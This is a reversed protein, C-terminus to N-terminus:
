GAMGKRNRVQGTKSVKRNPLRKESADIVWTQLVEKQEVKKKERDKADKVRRIYGSYIVVEAVAVVGSGSLSLALRSPVSWHRAAMWITFSCAIISVLVNIILALQRNVDAYTVEDEEVKETSPFLHAHPSNSYRQAFTEMKPPPNLMREYKRAEEEERLRSMLAKYEDSPEKKPPPPPVYLKAGRLLEDLHYSVNATEEDSEQYHKKLHRAIDILQGHSIPNGVEPAELSPEQPSKSRIVDELGLKICAQIAVVTSTTITLLVM